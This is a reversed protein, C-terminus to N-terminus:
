AMTPRQGVVMTHVDRGRLTNDNRLPASSDKEACALYRWKTVVHCGNKQRQQATTPTQAFGQRVLDRLCPWWCCRCMYFRLPM